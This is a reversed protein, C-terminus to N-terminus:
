KRGKGAQSMSFGKRDMKGWGSVKRLSSIYGRVRLFGSFQRFGFAEFFSYLVLILRDKRGFLESKYEAIFLSCNTIFISYLVTATFFFLATQLNIMGLVLASAFILYGQLEIWPGFMEFIFYYPFSIMGATGYVPNFLMRIHYTLIDILGRQWRDRQRFITKWNEPIETWCNANFIYKVLPREKREMAYRKLRVVLEMDEGVTDKDFFGSETMYGHDAIVKRRSFVGFAGSIILLANLYAWGVRGAMFARLYEVTQFRALNSKGIGTKRIFGNKVECGNVPFINGGAAIVEREEDLFSSTVRMIADRELLSDSDIGVFYDKCAANIGCNLSDAKGGNMKDVLILEPYRAGRYVARIEKTELKEEFNIESKELEFYRIVKQLTNDKSGDNVVVVEYDPYRLNLLSNISEIITNEENYAPAIVSVSPLINERFLFSIKKLEFYKSQREVGIFSFVLIIFYFSNLAISYFSFALMFFSVYDNILSAKNFGGSIFLLPFILMTFALLLWLLHLKVKERAIRPKEPLAKKSFGMRALVKEDLYIELQKRVEPNEAGLIISVIQKEIEPDRNRNLFNIIGSLKGRSVLNKILAKVDERHNGLLKEFVYEMRYSIIDVLKETIRTDKENFTRLVLHRYYGPIKRVVLSLAAASTSSISDDALFNILIGVSHNSPNEGLAEVAAKRIETDEHNIYNYIDISDFYYRSAVRFAELAVDRDSSATKELVYEKLIASPYKSAYYIFLLEIEKEKREKLVDFYDLLSGSFGCVISWFSQRFTEPLDKLSDIVQPIAAPDAQEVLSNIIYRKLPIGKERMLAALLANKVKGNKLYGMAVAAYSKKYRSGRLLWKILRNIIKWKDLLSVIEGSIDGPLFVSQRIDAYVDIIIKWDRKEPSYGDPMNGPFSSIWQRIRKKRANDRKRKWASIFTLFSSLFDLALVALFLNFVIGSPIM